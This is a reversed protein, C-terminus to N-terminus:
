LTMRVQDFSHVEFWTQDPAVEEVLLLPNARQASGSARMGRLVGEVERGAVDTFRVRKGIDNPLDAANCILEPM